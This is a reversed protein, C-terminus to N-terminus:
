SSLSHTALDSPPCKEDYSISVLINKGLGQKAFAQAVEVM